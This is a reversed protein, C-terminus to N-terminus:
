WSITYSNHTRFFVVYHQLGAISNTFIYNGPALVEVYEKETKHPAKHNKRGSSSEVTKLVRWRVSRVLSFVAPRFLAPVYSTNCYKSWKM